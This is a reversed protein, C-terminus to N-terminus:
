PNKRSSTSQDSLSDLRQALTAQSLGGIRTDVLHGRADFFLTTPLAQQGFQSGALGKPDLLVHRLKLSRAALFARVQDASEGQNLFVFNLEPHEAQAQQLVPMERQCPPCWTAWLNLVTPKGVFEPLSVSRGEVTPLTMAPLGREGQPQLALTTLGAIWFISAATMAALMPKRMLPRRRTLVLVYLWAAIFGVQPEWGGDRIDLIDLPASFYATHYQWVFALRARALAVLLGRFLSSEIDAGTKRGVRKGIFAGFAVAGVLLLLILPVVLPGIHISQTM